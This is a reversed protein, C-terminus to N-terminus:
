ILDWRLSVLPSRGRGRWIVTVVGVKILQHLARTKAEHDIGVARLAKNALPVPKGHAKFALYGVEILVAMPAHKLRGAAALAREYPLQIFRTGAPRRSRSLQPKSKPQKQFPALQAIQEPTLTFNALDFPDNSM